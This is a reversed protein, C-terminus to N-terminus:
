PSPCSCDPLPFGWLLTVCHRYFICGQGLTNKGGVSHTSLPFNGLATQALPPHCLICSQISSFYTCLSRVMGGISTKLCATSSWGEWSGSHGQPNLEWECAETCYMKERNQGLGHMFFIHFPSGQKWTANRQKVCASQFMDLMRDSLPFSIYLSAKCKWLGRYQDSELHRHTLNLSKSSCM